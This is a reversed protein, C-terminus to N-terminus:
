KIMEKLKKIKVNYKENLEKFLERNSDLGAKWKGDKKANAIIEEEEKLKDNLLKLYEAQAQEKTM